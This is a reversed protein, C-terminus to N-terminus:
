CEVKEEKCNGDPAVGQVFPSLFDLDVCWSTGAYAYEAYEQIRPSPDHMDPDQGWNIKCPSKGNTM